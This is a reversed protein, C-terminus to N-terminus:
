VRNIGDRGQSRWDNPHNIGHGLHRQGIKNAWDGETGEENGVNRHHYFQPPVEHSKLSNIKEAIEKILSSDSGVTNFGIYSQIQDWHDRMFYAAHGGGQSYSLVTVKRGRNFEQDELLDTLAEQCAKYSSVGIHKNLNELNSEFSGHHNLRQKTCRFCLLPELKSEDSIPVLAVANLGSNSIIKHVRYYEVTGRKEGPAPIVLEKTANYPNTELLCIIGM